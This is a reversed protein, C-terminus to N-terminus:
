ASLPLVPGGPRTHGRYGDPLIRWGGAVTQCILGTSGAAGAQFSYGGARIAGPHFTIERSGISDGTLQGDCVAAAARVAALHEARLGSENRDVRIGTVSVEKGMAAALSVATRM